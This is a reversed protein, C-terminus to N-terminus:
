GDNRELPQFNAWWDSSLPEVVPGCLLSGDDDHLEYEIVGPSRALDVGTVRTVLLYPPRSLWLSGPVPLVHTSRAM